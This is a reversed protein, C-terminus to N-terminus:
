RMTFRIMLACFVPLQIEIMKSLALWSCAISADTRQSSDPVTEEICGRNGDNNGM